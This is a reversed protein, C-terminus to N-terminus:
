RLVQLYHKNSQLLFGVM